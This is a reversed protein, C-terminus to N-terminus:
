WFKVTEMLKDKLSQNQQPSMSENMKLANFIRKSETGLVARKLVSFVSMCIINGIKTMETYQGKLGYKDSNVYFDSGIYEIVNEMINNVEKESFNSMSTNQTLFGGLFSM